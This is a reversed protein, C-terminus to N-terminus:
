SSPAECSNGVPDVFGFQRNEADAVPHLGDGMIKPAVDPRCGVAFVARCRDPASPFRGLQKVPECLFHRNPHTM